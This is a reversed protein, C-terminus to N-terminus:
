AVDGESMPVRLWNQSDWKFKLEKIYKSGVIKSNNQNGIKQIYLLRIFTIGLFTKDV